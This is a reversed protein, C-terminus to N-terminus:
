GRSLALVARVVPAIAPRGPGLEVVFATTGPRHDQWSAVSGPYRTLRRLPLGARRAFRQEIAVSGGSEDVVGLPQHFWVTVQPDLRRLFDQAARAEPESLPRPGSYQQDGRRGLRRWAFPFNRNLDVGRANQRTGAAAGDPNLSDIVWLDARGTRPARRLARVVAIGAREDGHICGVVLVRRRARPDGLERAVLPRGRM